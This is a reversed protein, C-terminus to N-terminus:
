KMMRVSKNTSASGDSCEGLCYQRLRRVDGGVNTGWWRWRRRSRVLSWGIRQQRVRVARHIFTPLYCLPSCPPTLNIATLHNCQKVHHKHCVNINFRQTGFYYWVAVVRRNGLPAGSVTLVPFICTRNGGSADLKARKEPIDPKGDFFVHPRSYCSDDM